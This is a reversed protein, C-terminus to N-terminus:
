SRRTATCSCRPRTTRRRPRSRRTLSGWSSPARAPLRPRPPCAPPDATLPPRPRPWPPPLPLRAPLGQTCRTSISGPGVGLTLATALVGGLLRGVAVRDFATLARVKYRRDAGAGLTIRAEWRGSAHLSVGRYKSSRGAKTGGTSRYRSRILQVAQARDPIALLGAIEEEYDEINFQSPTPTPNQPPPPPPYQNTKPKPKSQHQISPPVPPLTAARPSALPPRRRPQSRWRGGPSGLSGRSVNLVAKRKFFALAARDYV